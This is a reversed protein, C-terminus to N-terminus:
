RAPRSASGDRTRRQQAGPTLPTLREGVGRLSGIQTEETGWTASAMQLSGERGAGDNDNIFLDWYSDPGYRFLVKPVRFEYVTRRRSEDRRAAIEISETPQPLVIAGANLAPLAVRRPGPAAATEQGAPDSVAQTRVATGLEFRPLGNVLSLTLLLPDIEKSEEGVPEGFLLTIGDWQWLGPATSSVHIDDSVEIAGYLDNEFFALRVDAGCDEPGGFSRSKASSHHAFDPTWDMAAGLRRTKVSAWDSLDADVGPAGPLTGIEFEPPDELDRAMRLAAIADPDPRDQRIVM